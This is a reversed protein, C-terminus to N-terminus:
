RLRSGERIEDSGRKVIEDGPQLAGFVEVLDGAPAGRSVDVWEAVGGKSRIVFLRETTTVISSPPVLLSAHPRRVPWNVEPFMGPSLRGSHNEVDLEVPMTRTKPDVAHSIRAVRGEFHEGPFAPVQFAVRAGREIGGVVAEPVAVVLRLVADNDLKLLAGTSPGALAGPHMYRDTIVGSFPATVKLYAELDRQAQVVARAARVSDEDAEVAAQAADVAKEAQILENVAIAGPTQSAEKLRTYTAQAAALKAQDEARQSEAARLKSQAEALQAEMEPAVLVALLEGKKVVSGRDVLVQDVFGSVRARLDVTEFPLFEGPLKVERQVQRSVVPVLEVTQAQLGLVAALVLGCRVSANGIAM